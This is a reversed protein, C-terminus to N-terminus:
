EEVGLAKRAEELAERKDTESGWAMPTHFEYMLSLAAELEAVRAQLQAVAQQHDAHEVFRGDEVEYADDCYANFRRM